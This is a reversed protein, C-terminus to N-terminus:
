LSDQTIIPRSLSTKGLCKCAFDLSGEGREAILVIFSFLLFGEGLGVGFFYEMYFGFFFGIKIFIPENSSDQFVSGLPIYFNLLVQFYNKRGLFQTYSLSLSYRLYYSSYVSLQEYDM